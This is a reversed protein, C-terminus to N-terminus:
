GSTLARLLKPPRMDDPVKFDRAAGRMREPAAPFGSRRAYAHTSTDRRARLDGKRRSLRSACSVDLLTVALVAALALGVNEKQPNDDNLGPALTAIDLADGGVRGWVWGAPDNSALIGLGTGIERVGYAQLVPESDGMGLWRALARPAVLETVGLAISFWGLGRALARSEDGRKALTQTRNM